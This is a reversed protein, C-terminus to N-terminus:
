LRRAAVVLAAATALLILSSPEPVPTSSNPIESCNGQMTRVYEAGGILPARYDSYPPLQAAPGRLPAPHVVALAPHQPAPPMGHGAVAVCALGAGIAAPMALWVKRSGRWAIWRCFRRSWIFM